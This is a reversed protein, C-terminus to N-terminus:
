LDPFVDESSSLELKLFYVLHFFECGGSSSLTLTM